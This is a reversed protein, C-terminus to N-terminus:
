SAKVTAVRFAESAPLRAHEMENPHCRSLRSSEYLVLDRRVTRPGCAVDVHQKIEIFYWEM